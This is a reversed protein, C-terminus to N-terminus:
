SRALNQRCVSSLKARPDPRCQRKSCSDECLAHVSCNARHAVPGFHSAAVLANFFFAVSKHCFSPNLPVLLIAGGKCHFAASFCDEERELHTRELLAKKRLFILSEREGPKEDEQRTIRTEEWTMSIM